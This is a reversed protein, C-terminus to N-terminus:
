ATAVIDRARSPCRAGCTAFCRLGPSGNVQALDIKGATKLGNPEAITRGDYRGMWGYAITRSDLPFQRLQAPSCSLPFTEEIVVPRGVACDRLATMAEDEKGTTPHIHVSIFDLDGAPDRPVFASMWGWKPIWPLMGVTILHARDRGRIARIMTQLWLRAIQERPREKQDLSIFQLFDRDGLDGAYWDGSKRKGGPVLPENILDYCFVAPSKTCGDAVTERFRAQAGGARRNMLGTM